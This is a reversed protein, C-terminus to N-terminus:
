GIPATSNHWLLIMGLINAILAILCLARLVPKNTDSIEVLRVVIYTGIMVAIRM